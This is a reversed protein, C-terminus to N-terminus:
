GARLRGAKLAGIWALVVDLSGFLVHDAHGAGQFTRITKPEAALAHLERGMEVPIIGDAEGHIILLPATVSAIHRRTDYRDRMFLRGPVALLPYHLAALDVMSTYPAELVLGGVPRTAAVQTAVGTGLSEGYVVIDGPDIGLGVLTDYALVADRVNATESPSGSSGAFGRYTMIFVGLGQATYRTIREARSELAGANGHFYLVTQQGPRPPAFWAMVREGDATALVEERVGRLGAEAPSLYATGPFYMLRREVRPVILALLGAALAVGVALKLILGM